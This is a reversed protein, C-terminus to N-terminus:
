IELYPLYPFHSNLLYYLLISCIIATFMIAIINLNPDIKRLEPIKYNCKINRSNIAYFSYVIYMFNPLFTVQVIIGFLIYCIFVIQTMKNFFYDKFNHPMKLLFTSKFLSLLFLFWLFIGVIGYRWLIDLFDNDLYLLQQGNKYIDSGNGILMNLWPSTQYLGFIKYFKIDRGHLGGVASTNFIDAIKVPSFKIAFISLLVFLGIFILIINSSKSYKKFINFYWFFFILPVIVYSARHYSIFISVIALIIYVAYKYPKNSTHIFYLSFLITFILVRNLSTPHMYGGSARGVRGLNPLWDWFTYHFFGLYQLYSIVIPILSIAIFWRMFLEAKKLDTIDDWFYFLYIMPSIFRLFTGWSFLYHNFLFNSIFILLTFFALSKPVPLNRKVFIICITCFALFIGLVQAFNIGFIPKDWFLDIIPRLVLVLFLFKKFIIEM